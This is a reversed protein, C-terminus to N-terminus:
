PQLEVINIPARHSRAAERWGDDADRWDHRLFVEGRRVLGDQM